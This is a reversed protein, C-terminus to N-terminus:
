LSVRGVYIVGCACEEVSWQGSGTMVLLIPAETAKTVREPSAPDISIVARFRIEREVGMLATLGGLSHGALAVRSVDLRGLIARERHRESSGAGKACIESRGISCDRFVHLRKM